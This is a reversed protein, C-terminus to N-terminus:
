GQGLVAALGDLIGAWGSRTRDAYDPLVGEHTLTLDCGTAAPAIDVTVRTREAGWAFCRHILWGATSGM